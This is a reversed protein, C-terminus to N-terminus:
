KEIDKIWFKVYSQTVPDYVLRNHETEHLMAERETGFDHYIVNSPPYHRNMTEKLFDEKEMDNYDDIFKKFIQDTEKRRKKIKRDMWLAITVGFVFFLFAGTLMVEVPGYM